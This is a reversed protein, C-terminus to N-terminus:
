MINVLKYFCPAIGYHFKLRNPIVNNKFEEIGCEKLWNKFLSRKINCKWLKILYYFFLKLLHKIRFELLGNWPKLLLEKMANLKWRCEGHVCGVGDDDCVPELCPNLDHLTERVEPERWGAKPWYLWGKKIIFMSLFLTKLHLFRKRTSIVRYTNQYM